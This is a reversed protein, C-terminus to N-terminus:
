SNAEMDEVLATEAPTTERDRRRERFRAAQLRFLRAYEGGQALLQDHSGSETLRGGDLLVIRDARRITSLRHSILVVTAGSAADNVADVVRDFFEAEAQVDLHATPEDLVIVNRGHRVAYRVRALAVRQWQGGSLDVGGTLSSVLPTRIGDPLEGVLDDADSDRLARRVAAEDVPEDGAGLAVNHAASLPYRVFDQFLVALRRRWVALDADALDAGDVTVRGATPAHLGALLKMMTSKGAGNVGILALVEGPRITLDLGDLVPVEAGPYRFSTREFRIVPPAEGSLRRTARRVTGRQGAELRDLARVALMGNEIAFVDYGLWAIRFVGFAATTYTTLQGLGIRGDAAALGPLALAAGAGGLALLAVWGWHTYMVGRFKWFGQLRTRESATRRATIWDGLGFLRVEKATPESAALDSWYGVQRKLGTFHRDQYDAMALWQSRLIARRLLATLLLLVALPVSFRAVVAAALVAGLVRFSLAVQSTAALGPSREEGFAGRGTVREVDDQFAPDELHGIGPPSAALQRVRRRIRRDIQARTLQNATQALITGLYEGVLLVAFAAIPPLLASVSEPSQALEGVFWGLVLAQGAPAVALLAHGTLLLGPLRWGVGTLFRLLRIREGLIEGLRRPPLGCGALWRIAAQLAFFARTGVRAIM